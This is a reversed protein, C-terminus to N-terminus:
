VYRYTVPLVFCTQLKLHLLMVDFSSLDKLLIYIQTLVYLSIRICQYFEQVSISVHLGTLTTIGKDFSSKVGEFHSKRPSHILGGGGSGGRGGDGLLIVGRSLRSKFIRSFFYRERGRGGCGRM